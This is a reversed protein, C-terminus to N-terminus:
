TNTPSPRARQPAFALSGFMVTAQIVDTWVVAKIGGLTGIGVLSPVAPYGPNSM